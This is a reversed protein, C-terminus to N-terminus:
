KLYDKETGIRNREILSVLNEGSHEMLLFSYSDSDAPLRYVGFSRVGFPHESFTKHFKHEWLLEQHQRDNYALKIILTDSVCYNGKSVLTNLVRPRSLMNKGEALLADIYWGSFKEAHDITDDDIRASRFHKEKPARFM